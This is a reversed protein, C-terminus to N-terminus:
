VCRREHLDSVSYTTSVTKNPCLIANNGGVYPPRVSLICKIIVRVHVIQTTPAQSPPPPTLSAIKKNQKLQEHLARSCGSNPAGYAALLDKKEEEEEEKLM